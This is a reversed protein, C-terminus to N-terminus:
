NFLINTSKLARNLIRKQQLKMCSEPLWLGMCCSFSAKNEALSIRSIAML